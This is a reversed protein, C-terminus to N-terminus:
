ISVCGLGYDAHLGRPLYQQGRHWVRLVTRVHACVHACAHAHVDPCPHADHDSCPHAHIDPCAHAQM